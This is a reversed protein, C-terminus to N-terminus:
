IGQIFNYCIFFYYYAEITWNWFSESKPWTARGSSDDIYGFKSTWLPSSEYQLIRPKSVTYGSLHSYTVYKPAFYPRRRWSIVGCSTMISVELAHFVVTLSARSNGHIRRELLHQSGSPIMDTHVPTETSVARQSWESLIEINCYRIWTLFCSILHHPFSCPSHPFHVRPRKHPVKGASIKDTANATDTLINNSIMWYDVKFHACCWGM